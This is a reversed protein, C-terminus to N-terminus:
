RRFFEREFPLGARPHSTNCLRSTIPSELHPSDNDWAKEKYVVVTKPFVARPVNSGGAWKNISDAKELRVPEIREHGFELRGSLELNQRNQHTTFMRRQTMM